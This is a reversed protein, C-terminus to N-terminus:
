LGKDLIRACASSIDGETKEAGNHVKFVAEYIADDLGVECERQTREELEYEAVARDEYEEREYFRELRTEDDALVAILHVPVGFLSEFFEREAPSRIGEVVVSHSEVLAQGVASTAAVAPGAPGHVERLKQAYDWTGEPARPQGVYCTPMEDKQASMVDGMSVIPLGDIRAFKDSVFGKGSAPLGTFAYIKKQSM